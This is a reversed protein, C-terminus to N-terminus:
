RGRKVRPSLEQKLWRLYGKSGAVIPLAIIEPLEYPHIRRIVQELKPYHNVDTKFICLWEVSSDIREQWWYSSKVKGLIQACAALRQNLSAAVLQNAVTIDPVPVFVQLYCVAV